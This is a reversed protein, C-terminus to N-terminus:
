RPEEAASAYPACVPCQENRHINLSTFHMDLLSFTLMKSFLPKGFGTLLKIAEIAMLCGLAGSVAGLVPFGLEQWQPDDGPFVCDLCPTRGPVVNFLYAEMGDMAAEVMPIGQQVCARNLTRRERFNPRASLAIDTGKLLGAIGSETIWRDFIDVTVNSNVEQISKKAMVVRSRGIWDERMLIQRNMNSLTLDGRHVLVMKGIGAAALYLAATGGLGGIGAVLATARGLREQHERTFGELMLQRKYREMMDVSSELLLDM